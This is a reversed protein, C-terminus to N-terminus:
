ANDSELLKQIKIRTKKTEGPSKGNSNIGVVIDETMAISPFFFDCLSKDSSVSKMIGMDKCLGAIRKNEDSSNTAIIVIDKDQLDSDLFCRKKYILDAPCKSEELTDDNNLKDGINEDRYLSDKDNENEINYLSNKDYTQNIIENFEDSFEPAVVTINGGFRLLIRIRRAAIKGAGVVLINKGTLNIFLPFFNVM